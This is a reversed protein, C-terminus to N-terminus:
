NGYIRNDNITLYKVSDDEVDISILHRNNLVTCIIWINLRHISEVSHLQKLFTISTIQEEITAIITLTDRTDSTFQWLPMIEYPNKITNQQQKLFRKVARSM